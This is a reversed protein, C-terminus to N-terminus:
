RYVIEKEPSVLLLDETRKVNYFDLMFSIRDGIAYYLLNTM